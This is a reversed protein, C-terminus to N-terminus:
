VDHIADIAQFFLQQRHDEGNTGGNIKSTM